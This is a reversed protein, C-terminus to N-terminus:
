AYRRAGLWMGFLYFIAMVLFVDGTDIVVWGAAELLSVTFTTVFGAGFGLALAQLQIKRHLEDAQRLFRGFALAAFIGLATPVVVATVALAGGDILDRRLAYTASLFALAWAALVWNAIRANRRDRETMSRCHNLYSRWSSETHAEEM